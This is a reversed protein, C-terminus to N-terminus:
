SELIGPYGRAPEKDMPAVRGTPSSRRLPGMLRRAAGPFKAQRRSPISKAFCLSRRAIAKLLHRAINIAHLRLWFCSCSGRGDDRHVVLSAGQQGIGLAGLAAGLDLARAL